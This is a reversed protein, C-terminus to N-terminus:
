SHAYLIWAKGPATFSQTTSRDNAITAHGRKLPQGSHKFAKRQEELQQAIQYREADSLKGYNVRDGNIASALADAARQFEPRVYRDFTRQGM